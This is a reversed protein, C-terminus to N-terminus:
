PGADGQRDEGQDDGAHAHAHNHRRQDVRECPLDGSGVRAGDHSAVPGAQVEPLEGDGQQGDREERYDAYVIAAGTAEAVEALRRAMGSGPAAEREGTVVLAYRTGVRETAELLGESTTLPLRAEVTREEGWAAAMGPATLCTIDKTM